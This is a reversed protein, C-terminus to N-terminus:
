PPSRRTAWPTILRQVTLLIGDAVAALVVSLGAGLVIQTRFNNDLGEVILQGLGGVGILATVTVLGITTVTAIRVGAMIAPVALPLEIHLLEGNATYGMGQAAEHVERPVGDLGALVNRVLILLTYGVLAIEATTTSLGTIPILFGLLALSPITYIAGTVGLIPAQAWHHRYAVIALPVAIVLGIGVALLTLETHQWVAHRLVHLHGGVWQWDVWPQGVALVVASRLPARGAGSAVVSGM